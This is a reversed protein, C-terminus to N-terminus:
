RGGSLVKVTQITGDLQHKRLINFGNRARSQRIGAADFYEARVVQSPTEISSYEGHGDDLTLTAGAGTQEDGVVEKVLTKDFAAYDYHNSPFFYDNTGVRERVDDVGLCDTITINYTTGSKGPNKYVSTGTTSIDCKEVYINSEIGTGFCYHFGENTFLCNLIHVKGFRVRPCREMCGADWWCNAFTINLHGPDKTSSDSSGILNSFRHDNAGGSGGARPDQLYRFRCWTVAINDSGNNIDFNGDVGDLFDCHDVWIYYGEQILLNDNGDVDYAGPGKFTINRLIINQCNNTFKLIGSNKKTQDYNVFTAGPLGIITKNSIGNYTILNSFAIEGKVYIIRRVQTDKKGNVRLMADDFEQFTTVTVEEGGMGGTVTGGVTAWGVPMGQDYSATSPQAYVNLTFAFATVIVYLINRM